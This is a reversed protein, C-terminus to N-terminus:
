KQNKLWEEVKQQAEKQTYINGNEIDKESEKIVTMLYDEAKENTLTDNESDIDNTEFSKIMGTEKLWTLLQFIKKKNKKSIELHITM